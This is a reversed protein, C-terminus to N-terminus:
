RDGQHNGAAQAARRKEILAKLQQVRAAQTAAEDQRPREERDPSDGGAVVRMPVPRGVPRVLEAPPPAAAGGAPPPQPVPGGARSPADIPAGAPLEMEVRGGAGEFVAGRPRVEVLTSSGDPLAAGERVRVETGDRGRLLAMRLQPTLIIGTLQLEGLNGNGAAARAVPRRSPNFLPRTWVEAFQQLPPAPPLPRAAHADPPAAAARPPDWRVGRGLGALLALLLLGLLAALIALPPTLRRQAAANM